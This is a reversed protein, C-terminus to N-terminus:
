HLLLLFREVAMHIPESLLLLWAAGLLAPWLGPRGSLQEAPHDQSGLLLRVRRDLSGGLASTEPLLEHDSLHAGDVALQLRRTALLASAVTVACGTADVAQRDCTEEAKQRWLRLLRTGMLPVLGSALHLLLNKLPDKRRSHATEHALVARLELPALEALLEQGLLLRHKAAGVLGVWAGPVVHVSCAPARWGALGTTTRGPESEYLAATARTLRRVAVATRVVRVLTKAVLWVVQAVVM